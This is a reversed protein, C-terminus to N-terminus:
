RTTRVEDDCLWGTASYFDPLVSIGTDGGERHKPISGIRAPALYHFRAAPLQSVAQEDTTVLNTACWGPLTAGFLIGFLVRVSLKAKV